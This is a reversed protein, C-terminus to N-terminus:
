SASLARLKAVVVAHAAEVKAITEGLLTRSNHAESRRRENERKLSAFRLKLAAVKSEDSTEPERTELL